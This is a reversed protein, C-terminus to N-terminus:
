HFRRRRRTIAHKFVHDPETHRADCKVNKKVNNNLRLRASAAQYTCRKSSAHTINCINFRRRKQECPIHLMFCGVHCGSEAFRVVALSTLRVRFKVLDEGIFLGCQGGFPPLGGVLSLQPGLPRSYFRFNRLKGFPGPKLVAVTVFVWEPEVTVILRLNHSRVAHGLHSDMFPCRCLGSCRLATPRGSNRRCLARCVWCGLECTLWSHMFQLLM